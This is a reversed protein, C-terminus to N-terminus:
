WIAAHYLDRLQKEISVEWLITDSYIRVGAILSPDVTYTYSKKGSVHRAIFSEISKRQEDLLECSSAVTISHM